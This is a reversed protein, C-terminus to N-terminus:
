KGKGAWSVGAAALTSYFDSSFKTMFSAPNAYSNVAQDPWLMPPRLDTINAIKGDAVMKNANYLFIKAAAVGSPTGLLNIGYQSWGVPGSGCTAASYILEDSFGVSMKHANATGIIDVWNELGWSVIDNNLPDLYFSGNYCMLNIGDFWDNFNSASPQFFTQYLGGPQANSTGALVTLTTTPQHNCATTLTTFFSTIDGEQNATTFATSEIDFDLNAIDMSQAWNALTTAQSAASSTPTAIAWDTADATAGGFTLTTQLGNEQFGRIFMEQLNQEVGATSKYMMGISDDPSFQEAWPTSSTLANINALQAFNLNICSVGVAKMSAAVGAIYTNIQDQNMVPPTVSWDVYNWIPIQDLAFYCIQNQSLSSPTQYAATGIEAAESPDVDELPASPLPRTHLPRLPPGLNKPIPNGSADRHRARTTAVGKTGTDLVTQARARIAKCPDSAAIEKLEKESLVVRPDALKKRLIIQGSTVTLKARAKEVYPGEAPSGKTQWDGLQKVVEEFDGAEFLRKANALRNELLTGRAREYVEAEPNSQWNGVQGVIADLVKQNFLALVVEARLEQIESKALSNTHDVLSFFQGSLRKIEATQEPPATTIKRALDRINNADTSRYFLHNFFHVISAFFPNLKNKFTLTTKAPDTYKTYQFQDDRKPGLSQSM